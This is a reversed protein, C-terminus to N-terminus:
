SALNPASWAYVFINTPIHYLHALSPLTKAVFSTTSGVGRSVLSAGSARYHSRSSYPTLISPKTSPSHYYSLTNVLTPVSSGTTSFVPGKSARTWQSHFPHPSPVRAGFDIWRCLTSVRPCVKKPAALVVAVSKAAAVPLVDRLKGGVGCEGCMGGARTKNLFSTAWAKSTNYM